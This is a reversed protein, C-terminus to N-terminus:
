WRCARLSKEVHDFTEHYLDGIVDRVTYVDEMDIEGEVVLKELECFLHGEANGFDSINMLVAQIECREAWNKALGSTVDMEKLRSLGYSSLRREVAFPIKARLEGAGLGVGV